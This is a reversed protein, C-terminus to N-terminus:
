HGGFGKSVVMNSLDKGIQETQGAHTGKDSRERVQDTTAIDSDDASCEDADPHDDAARRM